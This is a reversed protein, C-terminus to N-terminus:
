KLLFTDIFERVCGEGGKKKLIHNVVSKVQDVADAPCASLGVAGIIKLDNVDDGIYAVESLDIMLKACWDKLEDLKEGFGVYVHTVGLTKARNSIINKNSGSSLFGVPIGEKQLLIIGRGDKTDFKKYENGDESYYMGGDTLVGDI